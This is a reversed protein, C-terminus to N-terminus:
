EEAIRGLDYGEFKMEEAAEAIKRVAANQPIGANFLAVAEADGSQAARRLEDLDDAYERM